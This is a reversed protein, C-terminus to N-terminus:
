KAVTYKSCNELDMTSEGAKVTGTVTVVDGEKVDKFKAFEAETVDCNVGRVDGSGSLMLPQHGTSDFAGPYTAPLKLVKGVLVVKKGLYKTKFEDPKDKQTARIEDITIPKNPDSKDAAGGCALLLATFIPLFAIKKM